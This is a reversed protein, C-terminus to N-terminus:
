FCRAAAASLLLASVATATAGGKKEEVPAPECLVKATSGRVETEICNGEGAKAGEACAQFREPCKPAGVECLLKVKFEGIEKEVCNGEGAKVGADCVREGEPCTVRDRCLAFHGKALETNVCGMKGDESGEPCEEKGEEDSCPVFCSKPYTSWKTNAGLTDYANILICERPDSDEPSVIIAVCDKTSTCWDQCAPVSQFDRQTIKEADDIKGMDAFQCKSESSAVAMLMGLVLCTKLNM